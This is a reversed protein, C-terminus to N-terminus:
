FNMSKSQVDALVNLNSKSGRNRGMSMSFSAMQIGFMYKHSLGKCVGIWKITGIPGNMENLLVVRDELKYDGLADHFTIPDAPGPQSSRPAVYEAPKESDPKMPKPPRSGRPIISRVNRFFKEAKM